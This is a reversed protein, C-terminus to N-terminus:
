GKPACFAEKIITIHRGWDKQLVVENSFEVRPEQTVPMGTWSYGGRRCADLNDFETSHTSSSNGGGGAVTTIITTFLIFKM